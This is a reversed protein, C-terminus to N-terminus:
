TGNDHPEASPRRQASPGNLLLIRRLRVEHPPLMFRSQQNTQSIANAQAPFEAMACVGVPVMCPTTVSLVPAATWPASTVIRLVVVFSSRLVVVSELPRYRM